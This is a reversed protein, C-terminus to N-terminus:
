TNHASKIISLVKIISLKVMYSLTFLNMTFYIETMWSTCNDIYPWDQKILVGM